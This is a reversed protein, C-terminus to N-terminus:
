SNEWSAKITRQKTVRNQEPHSSPRRTAFSGTDRTYSPLCMWVSLPWNAGCLPSTYGCLICIRRSAKAGPQRGFRRLACLGDSNGPNLVGLAVLVALGLVALAGVIVGQERTEKWLLARIM